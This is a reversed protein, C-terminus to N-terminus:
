RHERRFPYPAPESDTPPLTLAPEVVSWRGEFRGRSAPCGCLYEFTSVSVDAIRDPHVRQSPGYDVQRMVRCAAPGCLEVLLGCQVGNRQCPLALYDDPYGAGMHTVTGERSTDSALTPGSALFGLLLLVLAARIM